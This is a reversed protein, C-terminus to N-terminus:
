GHSRTRTKGHVNDGASIGVRDDNGDISSRWGANWGRNERDGPSRRELYDLIECSENRAVTRGISEAIGDVNQGRHFAHLAPGAMVALVRM